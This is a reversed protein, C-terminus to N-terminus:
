LAKDKTLLTSADQLMQVGCARVSVVSLSVLCLINGPGAPIKKNSQVLNPSNGSYSLHLQATGNVQSM